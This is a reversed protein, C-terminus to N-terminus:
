DIKAGKMDSVCLVELFLQSAMIGAPALECLGPTKPGQDTGCSM